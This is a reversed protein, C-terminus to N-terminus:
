VNWSAYSPGGDEATRYAKDPSVSLTVPYGGTACYGPTGALIEKDAMPGIPFSKGCAPCYAQVQVGNVIHEM